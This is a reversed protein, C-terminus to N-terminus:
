KNKKLYYDKERIEEQFIPYLENLLCSISENLIFRLYKSEKQFNFWIEDNLAIAKEIMLKAEKFNTKEEESLKLKNLEEDLGEDEFLHEFALNMIETSFEKDFYQGIDGVNEIKEYVENVVILNEILGPLKPSMFVKNLVKQANQAQIDDYVYKEFIYDKGSTIDVIRNITESPLHLKEVMATTFKDGDAYEKEGLLYGLECEFIECFRLMTELPPINGKEYVSIQKGTLGVKTGLTEQSWRRKKRENKINNGIVESSYKM